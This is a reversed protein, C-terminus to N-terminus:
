SRSWWPTLALDVALSARERLWRASVVHLPRAPSAAPVAIPDLGLRRFIQLARPMHWDCTVLGIRTVARERMLRRVGQANGRTTLSERESLLRESPVGREALGRAFVDAEREGQWRKGGSAIVVDAGHEHFARAAREVRRLAAASLQGGQVRCGLVVLAFLSM